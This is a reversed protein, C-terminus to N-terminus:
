VPFLRYVAEELFSQVTAMRKLYNQALAPLDWLNRGLIALASVFAACAAFLLFPRSNAKHRSIKPM